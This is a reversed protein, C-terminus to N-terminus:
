IYGLLGKGPPPTPPPPPPPENKPPDRFINKFSTWLNSAKEKVKKGLSILSDWNSVIAKTGAMVGQAILLPTLAAGGLLAFTAGAMGCELAGLLMEKRNGEKYGRRLKLVGSGLNLGGHAIGLLPTAQAVPGALSGLSLHETAALGGLFLGRAVEGSGSLVQVSDGKKAGNYIDVFGAVSLGGMAALGTLGATVQLATALGNVVTFKLLGPVYALAKPIKGLANLAYGGWRSVTETLAFRDEEEKPAGEQPPAEEKEKKPQSAPFRTM